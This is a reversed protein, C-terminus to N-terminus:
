ESLWSNIQRVVILVGNELHIHELQKSLELYNQPNLLQDVAKKFAIINAESAVILKKNVCGEIRNPQDKAVPVAVSPIQLSIAQLISGGGSLMAAKAGSLLAMFESNSLSKIPLNMSTPMPIPQPYSAGYVVLTKLQYTDEIYRAIDAFMDVAPKGNLKHGGSGANILIYENATVNYSQLTSIKIDETLPMYLTGLYEPHPKNFIKLKVQQWITLNTMTFEPQSVWHKDIYAIRRLSLGKARKIPHQSIFAVRAGLTKAYKFQESRGSADFLVVQPKIEHIIRKVSETCKTPTNPVLHVNFKCDNIYPANENLIFHIDVNPNQEVLFTAIITSRMYEGIGKKSSVPIFLIKQKLTM